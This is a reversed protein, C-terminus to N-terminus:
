LLLDAQMVQVRISYHVSIKNYNYVYKQLETDTIILSQNM